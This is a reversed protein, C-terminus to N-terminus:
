PKGIRCTGQRWTQWVLPREAAPLRENMQAQVKEAWKRRDGVGITNLTEDYPAIMEDPAVLGHKASLIFWQYGTAEVYARARHFM